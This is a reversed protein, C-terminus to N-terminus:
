RRWKLLHYGVHIKVTRPCVPQRFWWFVNQITNHASHLPTRYITPVASWGANTTTYPWMAAWTIWFPRHKKSPADGLILQVSFRWTGSQHTNLTQLLEKPHQLSIPWLFVNPLHTPPPWLEICMACVTAAPALPLIFVWIYHRFDMTQLRGFILGHHLHNDLCTSHQHEHSVLVQLVTFYRMNPCLECSLNGGIAKVRSYPLKLYTEHLVLRLYFSILM